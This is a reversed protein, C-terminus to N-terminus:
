RTIKPLLMGREPHSHDHSLLRASDSSSVGAQQPLYQQGHPLYLTSSLSSHQQKFKQWFHRM